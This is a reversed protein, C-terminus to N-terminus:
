WPEEPGIQEVLAPDAFIMEPKEAALVRGSELVVVLDAWRRAIRVDHTSLMVTKGRSVLREFIGFLQRRMWPDLSEAVEDAILLKPDMALVGALAVRAKQGGSLAHVPRDLLDVVECTEAAAQVRNRVEQEGLGMNLPGFSIDQAVSASFLQDDPNQFVIGVRSRLERLSDRGYTIPRGAWLVEGRDPHLVGNCHLFLTSKGSGNRGLVAVRCGSPVSLSAEKLAPATQGPYRYCLKRLELIPTM